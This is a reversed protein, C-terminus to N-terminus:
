RGGVAGHVHAPLFRAAADGGDDARDLGGLGRPTRGAVGRRLRRSGACAHVRIGGCTASPGASAAM